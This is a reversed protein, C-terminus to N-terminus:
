PRALEVDIGGDAGHRTVRTKFGQATYFDAALKEFRHWELSRLLKLSWSNPKAPPTDSMQPLEPIAIEPQNDKHNQPFAGSKVEHSYNGARGSFQRFASIGAAFLFIAAIIWAIQSSIRALSLLIRSHSLMGPAVWKLGVYAVAALIVGFYWPANAAMEFINEQRKRGM